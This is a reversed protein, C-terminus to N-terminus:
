ITLRPFGPAPTRIEWGGGSSSSYFYSWLPTIKITRRASGPPLEEEGADDGWFFVNKQPEVTSTFRGGEAMENANFNGMQTNKSVVGQGYPAAPILFIGMQVIKGALSITM